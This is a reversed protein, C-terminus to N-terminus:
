KQAPIRRLAIFGPTKQIRSVNWLTESKKRKASRNRNDVIRM